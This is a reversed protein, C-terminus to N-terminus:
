HFLLAKSNVYFVIIVRIYFCHLFKNINKGLTASLNLQCRNLLPHTTLSTKLYGDPYVNWQRLLCLTWYNSTLRWSYIMETTHYSLHYTENKLYDCGAILLWTRKEKTYTYLPIQFSSTLNWTHQLNDLWYANWTHLETSSHPVYSKIWKLRNLEM